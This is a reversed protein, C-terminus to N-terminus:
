VALLQRAVVDEFDAFPASLEYVGADTKELGAREAEDADRGLYVARATMTDGELYRRVIQFALGRWTGTVVLAHLDAVDSPEVVGAWVGRETQRLADWPSESAVVVRGNPLADALVQQGNWTAFVGVVDSSGIRGAPRPLWGSAVHDYHALVEERGDAHVRWLESGAPVRCPDLWWLPVPDTTAPTAAFGTGTFPPRDVFGNVPDLERGVAPVLRLYPTAPFRLVDIFPADRRLPSGPFGVGMADFLEGATRAWAVDAARVVFGVLLDDDFQAWSRERAPLVIKQMIVVVVGDGDAM